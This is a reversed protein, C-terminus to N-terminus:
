QLQWGGGLARYLLVADLRQNLESENLDLQAALLQRQADLVELYSIVGSRFRQEALRLSERNVEIRRRNNEVEARDRDYAVLTDSVEQLAVLITRRYLAVSEEARAQAGRYNARIAGANFIPALVAGGVAGVTEGDEGTLGGLSESARGLLGTLSITPFFQARAVGIDANAAILQQEAQRIDPRRVLLDSPLGAPIEPPVIAPPLDAGLEFSRPAKGLLLALVHEAQAIQRELGPVQNETALLQGEAQRVEAASQVGQRALLEVLKLSERQADITQQVVELRQRLGKVQLYQQAVSSVLSSIVANRGEETALLAARAAESARRYRGWFDLEWSLTLAALFDNATRFTPNQNGRVFDGRASLQPFLPSRASALVAQAQTIQAAAIALELNDRLAERILETLVPDQFVMWWQLDAISEASAAAPGRHFAEPMTVPPRQYDPGVMCGGAFLALGLLGGRM